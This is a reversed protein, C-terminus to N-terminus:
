SSICILSTQINFTEANNFNWFISIKWNVITSCKENPFIAVHTQTSEGCDMVTTAEEALVPWSDPDVDQTPQISGAATDLQGDDDAHTVDGTLLSLCQM